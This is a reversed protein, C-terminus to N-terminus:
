KWKLLGELFLNLQGEPLYTKINIGSPTAIELVIKEAVINGIPLFKIAKTESNAEEKSQRSKKLWGNLSMVNINNRRSFERQSLGSQKWEECIKEREERTRSIQM